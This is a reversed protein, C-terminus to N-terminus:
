LNGFVLNCCNLMPWPRCGPRGGLLPGMFTITKLRIKGTDEHDFLATLAGHETELSRRGL